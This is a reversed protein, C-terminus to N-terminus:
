RLNISHHYKQSMRSILKELTRYAETATLDKTHAECKSFLRAIALITQSNEKVM